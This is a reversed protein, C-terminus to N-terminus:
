TKGFVVGKSRINLRREDSYKTEKGEIYYNNYGSGRKVQNERPIKRMKRDGVHKGQRAVLNGHGGKLGEEVAIVGDLM